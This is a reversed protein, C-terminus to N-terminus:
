NNASSIEEVTYEPLADISGIFTNKENDLFIDLQDPYATNIKWKADANLFALDGSDLKEERQENMNINTFTVTVNKKAIVVFNKYKSNDTKSVYEKSLLYSETKIKDTIRINRQSTVDITQIEDKYQVQLWIIYIVVILSISLLIIKKSPRLAEENEYTYASTETTLENTSIIEEKQSKINKIIEEADLNLFKAYAKIYGIPYIINSVEKIRGEEILEIYQPRINLEKSIRKISFRRKKRAKQLTEGIEKM